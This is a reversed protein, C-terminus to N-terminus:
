RKFCNNCYYTGKILNCTDGLKRSCEYCYLDDSPTLIGIKTDINSSFDESELKKDLEHNVIPQIPKMEGSLMSKLKDILAKNRLLGNPRSFLFAFVLYLCLLKVLFKFVGSWEISFLLLFLIPIALCGGIVSGGAKLIGSAIDGSFDRNSM